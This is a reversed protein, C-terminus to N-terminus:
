PLAINARQAIERALKQFERYAGLAAQLHAGLAGDAPKLSFIPKRADQALQVLSRYNKLSALREADRSPTIPETVEKDLMYKSYDNPIHAMWRNYAKVPLDMRIPQQLVIYGLPQMIGPPLPFDTSTNRTFRDQWETRWRRLTPGLNHLGQISFIDPALPTVIYDAAILAARNIAGLNPGLDLLIVNAKHMTAARQMISWFASTVRFARASNELCNSWADSLEEEISSLFLDGVLLALPSSFLTNQLTDDIEELHPEAIDGTEQILPQVCGFITNPHNGDPWLEELRDEDLFAATLNAQPDLDAAIIRYGIEAYMSSLHYVLLTKGVGGTINFFAIVPTSM